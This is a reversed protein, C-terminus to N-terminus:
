TGAVAAPSRQAIFAPEGSPDFIRYGLLKVRDNIFFWILAYGWVLGALEWGIAPMLLGYVAIITAVAQTGFLVAM